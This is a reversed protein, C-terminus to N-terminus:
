SGNTESELKGWLWLPRLRSDPKDKHEDCRYTWHNPWPKDHGYKGAKTMTPGFAAKVTATKECIDCQM